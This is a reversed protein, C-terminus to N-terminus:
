KEKIKAYYVANSDQLNNGLANIHLSFSGKGVYDMDIMGRPIEVSIISEKILFEDEYICEFSIKSLNGGDINEIKLNRINKLKM